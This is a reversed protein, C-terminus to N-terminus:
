HLDMKSSSTFFETKEQRELQTMATKKHVPLIGCADAKIDQREDPGKFCGSFLAESVTFLSVSQKKM